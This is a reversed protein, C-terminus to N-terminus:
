CGGGRNPRLEDLQEEISALVAVLELAPIPEGQRAATNVRRAIQNLNNGIGALQRVVAARGARDEASWPRVRGLSLRVLDSLPMGAAAALQRWHGIEEGSVRIRFIQTRAM